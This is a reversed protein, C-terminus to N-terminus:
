QQKGAIDAIYVIPDAVVRVNPSGLNAVFNPAFNILNMIITHALILVCCVTFIADKQTDGTGILELITVLCMM